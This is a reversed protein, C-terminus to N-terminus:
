VLFLNIEDNSRLHLINGWKKSFDKFTKFDINLFIKKLNNVSYMGMSLSYKYINDLSQDNGCIGILENLQDYNKLKIKEIFSDFYFAKTKTLYDAIVNINMNNVPILLDHTIFIHTYIDKNFLKLFEEKLNKFYCIKYLFSNQQFNLNEKFYVYIDVEGVLKEKIKKVFNDIKEVNPELLCLAIKIDKKDACLSQDLRSYKKCKRMYHDIDYQLKPYVKDDNCCEDMRNYSYIIYKLREFRNGAMELMPYMKCIDSATTVIKGKYMFNQLSIERFLWAYFARQQSTHRCFSRIENQDIILKPIDLCWNISGSPVDISGGYTVWVDKKIFVENIYSFAYDKCYWDDGDLIVIIDEDKIIFNIGLFNHIALWINKAKGQHIKNKHLFFKESENSKLILNEVKEYTLDTSCDDIYIVKYNDYKQMLISKINEECWKENNYSPVIIILSKELGSISQFFLILLAVRKRILKKFIFM